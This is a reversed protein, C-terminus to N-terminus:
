CHLFVTPADCLPIPPNAPLSRPASTESRNTDWAWRFGRPAGSAAASPRLHTSPAAQRGLSRVTGSNAGSQFQRPAHHIMDPVLLGSATFFSSSFICLSKLAKDRSHLFFNGGTLSTLKPRRRSFARHVQRNRNSGTRWLWGGARIKMQGEGTWTQSDTPQEM